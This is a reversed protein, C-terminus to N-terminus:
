AIEDAPVFFYEAYYLSDGVMFIVRVGEMHRYVMFYGRELLDVYLRRVVFEGVRTVDRIYLHIAVREFVELRELLDDAVHLFLPDAVARDVMRYVAVRNAAIRSDDVACARFAASAFVVSLAIKRSDPADCPIEPRKVPEVVRFDFFFFRPHFMERAIRIYLHYLVPASIYDGQIEYIM